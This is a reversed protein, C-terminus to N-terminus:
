ADGLLWAMWSLVLVGRATWAVTRIWNSVVLLRHAQRDFGRSLIRHAPVQLVFTSLWIVGVLALGLWTSAPALGAPPTVVLWVATIAEGFMLPIVVVSIRTAHGAHYSTFEDGIRSFLPYQVVQVMWILGVLACTAGTHVLLVWHALWASLISELM